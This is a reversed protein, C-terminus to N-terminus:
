RPSLAVGGYAMAGMEDMIQRFISDSGRALM